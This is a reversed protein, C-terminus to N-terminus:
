EFIAKVVEEVTIERLCEGGCGTVSTSGHCPSCPYNKTLVTVSPGAPKWVLPDSPGFIAVTAVGLAASLHTPGSDNGIYLSCRSIVAALLSLPLNECVIDGTPFPFRNEAPGKLWVINFDRKCLESSLALFREPPWNKKLSGSGPHIM